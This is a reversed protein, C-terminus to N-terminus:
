EVQRLRGMREMSVQSKGQTARASCTSKVCTSARRCAVVDHVDQDAPRLAVGDADARDKAQLGNASKLYWRLM